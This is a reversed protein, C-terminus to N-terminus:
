ESVCESVWKCLRTSARVHRGRADAKNLLLPFVTSSIVVTCLVTHLVM